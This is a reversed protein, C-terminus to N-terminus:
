ASVPFPHKEAKSGVEMELDFLMLAAWEGVSSCSTLSARSALSLCLAPLLLLEPIWMPSRPGILGFGLSDVEVFFENIAMPDFGLGAM